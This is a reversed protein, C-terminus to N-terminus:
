SHLSPLFQPTLLYQKSPWPSPQHRAVPISQSEFPLIIKTTHLHQAFIFVFSSHSDSHRIYLYCATTSTSNVSFSRKSHLINVYDNSIRLGYRPRPSRLLNYYNVGRSAASPLPGACGLLRVPYHWLINSLMGAQIYIMACWVRSFLLYALISPSSCDIFCKAFLWAVQATLPICM